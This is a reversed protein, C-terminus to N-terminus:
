KLLEPDVDRTGAKKKFAALRPGTGIVELFVALEAARARKREDQRWRHLLESSPRFGGEEAPPQRPRAAVLLDNLRDQHALPANRMKSSRKPNLAALKEGKPADHGQASKGGHSCSTLADETPTEGHPNGTPAGGALPEPLARTTSKGGHPHSTSADEMPTEGHPNGALAGGVLPDSPARDATKGGHPRPPSLVVKPTPAGRSLPEVSAKM